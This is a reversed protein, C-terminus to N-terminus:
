CQTLISWKRKNWFSRLILTHITSRDKWIQIVIKSRDSHATRKNKNIWSRYFVQDIKVSTSTKALVTVYTNLSTICYKLHWCLLTFRSPFSPFNNYLKIFYKLKKTGSKKENLAKSCNKAINGCVTKRLKVLVNWIKKSILCIQPFRLAILKKNNNM